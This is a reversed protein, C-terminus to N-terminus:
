SGEEGEPNEQIQEESHLESILEILQNHKTQLEQLETALKSIRFVMSFAMTTFFVLILPLFNKVTFIKKM